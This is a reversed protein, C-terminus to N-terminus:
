AGLHRRFFDIEMRITKVFLRGRYVDFHGCDLEVLEARPIGRAAAHVSRAPVLSDNVACLIFVPCTLRRARRAPRYFPIRLMIRAPAENKWGTDGPFLALYGAYSEPTNMLAFGEPTGVIPVTHPRRFTLVRALDRLGHLMGKVIFSLPFSRMTAIGDVFPIQSVVAAIGGDKAAAALAHGGSFSTGWLAIRSADVSELTRVFAIAALYDRVHRGPSILNRPEGPSDGFNRYDFMLVAFGEAAFREAYAALGFAREAGLGHAMVIVPPKASGPMFLTAACSGGGSPFTLETRNSRPKGSSRAAPSSSRNAM